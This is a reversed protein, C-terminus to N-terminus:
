GAGGADVADREANIVNALAGRYFLVAPTTSTIQGVHSPFNKQAFPQVRLNILDGSIQGDPLDVQGPEAIEGKQCPGAWLIKLRPPIEMRM